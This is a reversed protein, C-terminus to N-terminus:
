VMRYGSCDVKNFFQNSYLNAALDYKYLLSILTSKGDARPISFLQQAIEKQEETLTIGHFHVFENFDEYTNMRSTNM